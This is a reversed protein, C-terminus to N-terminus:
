ILKAALMVRYILMFPVAAGIIYVALWVAFRPRYRRLASFYGWGYFMLVALAFLSLFSGAAWGVVFLLVGFLVAWLLAPAQPCLNEQLKGFLLLLLTTTM